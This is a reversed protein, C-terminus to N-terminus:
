HVIHEIHGGNHALVDELHIYVHTVLKQCADESITRCLQIILAKLEVLTTSKRM